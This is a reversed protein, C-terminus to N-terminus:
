RQMNGTVEDKMNNKNKDTKKNKDVNTNNTRQNEEKNKERRQGKNKILCANSARIFIGKLNTNLLTSNLPFTYFEM